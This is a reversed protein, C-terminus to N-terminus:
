QSVTKLWVMSVEGPNSVNPLTHKPWVGMYDVAWIIPPYHPMVNIPAYPVRSNGTASHACESLLVTSITKCSTCYCFLHGLERERSSSIRWTVPLISCRSQVASSAPYHIRPESSAFRKSELALKFLMARETKRWWSKNEYTNVHGGGPCSSWHSKETRLINNGGCSSGRGRARSYKKRPLVGTRPRTMHYKIGRFIRDGWILYKLSASINPRPLSFIESIAQFIQGGGGYTVM